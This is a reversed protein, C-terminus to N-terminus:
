KIILFKTSLSCMCTCSHLVLSCLTLLYFKVLNGLCVGAKLRWDHHRARGELCSSVSRWYLLNAKSKIDTTQNIEKFRQFYLDKTLYWNMHNFQNLFFFGTNYWTLVHYLHISLRKHRLMPFHLAAVPPLPSFAPLSYSLILGCQRPFRLLRNLNQKKRFIIKAQISRALWTVILFHAYSNPCLYWGAKQGCEYHFRFM